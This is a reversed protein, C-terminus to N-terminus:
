LSFESQNACDRRPLTAYQWQGNELYCESICFARHWRSNKMRAPGAEWKRVLETVPSAV